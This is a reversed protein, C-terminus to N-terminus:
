EQESRIDTAALREIVFYAIGLTLVAPLLLEQFATSLATDVAEVYDGSDSFPRMWNYGIRVSVVLLVLYVAYSAAVLLIGQRDRHNRNFEYLSRGLEVLKVLLLLVLFDVFEARSLLIAIVAGAGLPIGLADIIYSAM